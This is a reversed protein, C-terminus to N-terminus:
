SLSTHKLGIESPSIMNLMEFSQTEIDKEQLIFEERLRMLEESQSGFIKGEIVTEEKQHPETNAQASMTFLAGAVAVFLISKKM